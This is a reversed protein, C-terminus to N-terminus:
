RGPVGQMLAGMGGMQQPKAPLEFVSAPIANTNLSQLRILDDLRLLSMSKISANEQIRGTVGSPMIGMSSRSIEEVGLVANQLDRDKGLVIEHQKGQDTFRYVKGRIGAITETRGTDVHKIPTSPLNANRRTGGRGMAAMLQSLQSMDQVVKGVISYVKDGLKLMTMEHSSGSNMDVRVHQKDVYRITQTGSGDPSTMKYVATVDAFAGPAGMLTMGMVVAISCIMKTAKM